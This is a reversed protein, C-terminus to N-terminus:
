VELKELIENSVEIPDDGETLPLDHADFSAENIRELAGDLMLDLDEAVDLLEQRTWQPRTLLIRAFSSHAADLGLFGVATEPEISVEEVDPRPAAMQTLQEEETFIGALLKSVKETDKQLAAIRAQDLKFGSVPEKSATVASGIGSAAAHIDSFVKKSDIGLAKYVKELMKVETPSAIGDAQAVSTMFLAIVEKSATPLADLRKKLSALSVPTAILLKLHALLRQHHSTSLHTRAQIQSQLHRVEAESFEGDVSAVASALQLTLLAAQYAPTERHNVESTLMPFLIVKDEAKPIATSGLVDPEMGIGLSEMVRALDQLKDRSLSAGGGLPTLLDGLSQTTIMGVVSIRTKIDLLIAQGPQPWLAFPLLLLGELSNAPNPTKTRGLYRSYPEIEKTAAEAIKQLEGIPGTLVSVDPTDGFSLKIESFERLASSAPRYVLKLKTKNKPLKLGTSYTKLYKIEFLKAFETSCRTAPTRLRSNPDLRVWALAIHAPIGIGALAVQGLALRLYGPLEWTRQFEPVPDNYFSSSHNSLEIWELLLTAYNQFSSSTLGYIGLLRRIETGLLPLEARATADKSGDLLARRELGYFYLFVFGIDANPDKRGSCLWNLYARRAAPSIQSYSPWYDTQRATYDGKSAISKSPDILCPDNESFQTKLTTGVYVMGGPIHIDGVHVPMGSPYWRGEDYGIPSKPISFGSPSLSAAPARAFSDEETRVREIVPATFAAKSQSVQVLEQKQELGVTTVPATSHQSVRNSVQRPEPTVPQSKKLSRIVLWVGGVLAIGIWVRMPITALLLLLAGVVVIGGEGGSKKKRAM